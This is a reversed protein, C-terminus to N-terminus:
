YRCQVTVTVDIASVLTVNMRSILTSPSISIAVRENLVTGSANLEPLRVTDTWGSNTNISGSWVSDFGEISLYVSFSYSGSYSPQRIDFSFSPATFKCWTFGSLDLTEGIWSTTGGGMTLNQNPALYLHVSRFESSMLDYSMPMPCMFANAM